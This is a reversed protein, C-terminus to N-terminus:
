NQATLRWMEVVFLSLVLPLALADNQDHHCRLQKLYTAEESVRQRYPSGNLKLLHSFSAKHIYSQDPFIQSQKSHSTTLDGHRSLGIM